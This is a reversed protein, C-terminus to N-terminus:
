ATAGITYHTGGAGIVDGTMRRRDCTFRPWYCRRDRTCGAVADVPQPAGFLGTLAPLELVVDASCFATEAVPRGVVPGGGGVWSLPVGLLCHAAM